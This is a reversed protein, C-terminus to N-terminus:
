VAGGVLSELSELLVQALFVTANDQDPPVNARELVGVAVISTDDADTLVYGISAM